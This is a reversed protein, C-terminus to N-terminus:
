ATPDSSRIATKGRSEPASASTTYMATENPVKAANNTPKVDTYGLSPRGQSSSTTATPMTLTALM